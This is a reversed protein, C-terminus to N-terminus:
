RGFDEAPLIWMLCALLSLVGAFYLTTTPSSQEPADKTFLRWAAGLAILFFLGEGLAILFAVSLALGAARQARTLALFAGAGDLAWVPILNLLNLWAGTRALAAWLDNGSRLWLVTCVAAALFGALPGALSVAARTEVPVGLARWRVFAGLGPLFIPMDVPLGRRKIDIYHGFEHIVIQVTFGLAFKLGHISWYVGLFAGLSFLFKMNFLALLTKGKSLALLVAAVPALRGTWKKLETSPATRAAPLAKAALALRHVYEQIWVAQTSGAPLMPLAKLWEERAGLRHGQEELM